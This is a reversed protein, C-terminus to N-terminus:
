QQMVKAKGSHLKGANEKPVRIKIIDNGSSDKNITLIEATISTREKELALAYKKAVLDLIDEGDGNKRSDLFSNIEEQNEGDYGLEEMVENKIRALTTIM